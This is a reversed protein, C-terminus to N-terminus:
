SGGQRAAADVIEAIDRVMLREGAISSSAADDFMTMCFPCATAVTGAGTGRAEEYRIANIKQGAEVEFWMNAGGAGCCFSQTRTRPMERLELGPVAQLATRPEDYVDNHRGLYCADHFTVAEAGDGRLSLRGRHLLEAILQSHHVVHFDGGLQPYENRLANLCHPCQTIIKKVGHKQLAGINDRALLQFLGEEGLRRAPDGSCREAPGLVAFDVGARSLVSVTARAVKQAREDYAGACGVWLLWEADPREAITAVKLSQPLDAGWNLRHESPLGYPNGTQRLANLTKTINEDVRSREVLGRRVDVLVDIHEIAVPCAQMCARCTTCSWAELPSVVEDLPTEWGSAPNTDLHRRLSVIIHKPSLPRGAATAPCQVECLGCETCADLSLLQKWTLDRATRPAVTLPAGAELEELRFSPLLAGKPRSQTFLINLPATLAHLLRTQPLAAIFGFSVVAHLWWTAWHWRAVNPVHTVRIVDAVLAGVPSWDQWYTPGIAMRFGELMFGTVVLLALTFLVGGYYAGATRKPQVIYRRYAAIGVGLLLAVGACDMALSFALYFLGHFFSLPTDHEVAILETGLFLMLFGWFILPHMAGSSPESRLRPQAFVQTVFRPLQRVVDALSPGRAGRAWRRMRRVVGIVFLATAVTALVYFLTQEGASINQFIERTAQQMVAETLDV